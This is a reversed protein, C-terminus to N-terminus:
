LVASMAVHQVDELDDIASLLAGLKEGESGEPFTIPTKPWLEVNAERVEWKNAALKEKLDGLAHPSALMILEDDDELVDETGWEILQLEDEDSFTTPKAVRLVARREFMWLVSGQGALNGGHKTLAIKVSQATRNRNDTLAEIVIAVQAPGFAEYTISELAEGALEGTGRKIARDINEKPMNVSRARDAALRLKFNMELNGGGERAAITIANAHKTFAAGRKADVVAKARKTTAWKSHGSM